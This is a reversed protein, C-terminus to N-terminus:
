QARSDIVRRALDRIPTNTDQSLRKLMEFAQMSDLNFREMLIGKAQGIHDRTALASYFQGQTDVASFALAAHTALMAGLTEAELTFTCPASGFLNLAGAAGRRHFLQFSLMSYIGLKTAAASFRPFRPEDRLDTCRILSDGIAAQLCPGERFRQQIADVDEALPATSAMSAFRDEEILLVDAHDVGRILEVAASTVSVLADDLTGSSLPFSSALRAMAARLEPERQADNSM